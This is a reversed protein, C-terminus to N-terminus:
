YWLTDSKWYVVQTINTMTDSSGVSMHTVIQDCNGLCTKGNRLIIHKTHNRVTLFLVLPSLHNKKSNLLLNKRWDDNCTPWTALSMYCWLTIHWAIVSLTLKLIDHTVWILQLYTLNRWYYLHGVLTQLTYSTSCNTELRSFVITYLCPVANM